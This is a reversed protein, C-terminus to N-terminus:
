WINGAGPTYSASVVATAIVTDAQVVGSVRFMGADVNVMGASLDIRSAKLSLQAVSDIEIDGDRVNVRTDGHSIEIGKGERLVISIKEKGMEIRVSGPDPGEEIVLAAKDTAIVKHQAQHAAVPPRAVGNWLSGIVYARDPDGAEFAVLVEDGNEPMFWAGRGSGAYFQALRAAVEFARGEQDVLWELTVM